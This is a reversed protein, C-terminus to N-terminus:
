VNFRFQIIDGDRVAYDKGEQRIKGASRLAADSGVAELDELRFVEACIFGREMDTHIQGAATVAHTGETVTWARSEKPMATFFTILGLLHYASRALMHLGPEPLGMSELFESQEAPPLEAIEAEVKGCLAICEAGGGSAHQRLAAVGPPEEQLGNEDVNAVYLVKKATLLSFDKLASAMDAASLLARVPTGEAVAAHAKELAEVRAKLKKDGSKAAKGARDLGRELTELDKLLLETNVTEVDRLPDVAGEVHVVDDNAFCRVVHVLADVNRIHGLFQNGLGEGKSAGRVLGAVDVLELLAPVVKQTPILAAIRGLRDDPIAVMGTNPDITCFPYNEAPAKGSCLANFITSKGVNPLGIVGATLGM